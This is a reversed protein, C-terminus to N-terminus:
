KIIGINTYNKIFHIYVFVELIFSFFWNYKM